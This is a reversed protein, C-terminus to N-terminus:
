SELRCFAATFVAGTDRNEVSLNLLPSSPIHNHDLERSFVYCEPDGEFSIRYHNYYGYKERIRLTGNDVMSSISACSDSLLSDSVMIDGDQIRLVKGTFMDGREADLPIWTGEMWSFTELETLSTCPECATFAIVVFLVLLVKRVM